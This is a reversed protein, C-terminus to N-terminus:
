CRYKLLEIIQQEIRLTAGGRRAQKEEELKVKNRLDDFKDIKLLLYNM